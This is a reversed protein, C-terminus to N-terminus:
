KKVLVHKKGDLVLLLKGGELRATFSHLVKGLKFSGKLSSASGTVTLSAKDQSGWLFTM